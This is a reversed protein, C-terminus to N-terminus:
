DIRVHKMQDNQVLNNVISITSKSDSYLIKPSPVLLHLDELMKEVWIVECLGQTIARYEAKANSRTGVSQKKSRWTVLNGWLKTCFDSTSRSDEYSGVWNADVFAKIGRDKSKKYM